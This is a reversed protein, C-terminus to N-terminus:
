NQKRSCVHTANTEEYLTAIKSDDEFKLDDILDNEHIYKSKHEYM